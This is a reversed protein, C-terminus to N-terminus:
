RQGATRQLRADQIICHSNTNPIVTANLTPTGGNPRGPSRHIEDIQRYNSGVEHPMPKRCSTLARVSRWAFLIDLQSQVLPRGSSISGLLAMHQRPTQMTFYGESSMKVTVPARSGIWTMKCFVKPTM